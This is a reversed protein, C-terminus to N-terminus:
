DCATRLYGNGSGEVIQAKYRGSLVHGTLKHRHNLRLTYTSQLWAMGAVMWTDTRVISVKRPFHSNPTTGPWTNRSSVIALFPNRSEQAPTKIGIM